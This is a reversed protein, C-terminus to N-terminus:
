ACLISTYICTHACVCVPWVRVCGCVGCLCILLVRMYERVCLCVGIVGLVWAWMWWACAWVFLHAPVCGCGGVDVGVGVCSHM